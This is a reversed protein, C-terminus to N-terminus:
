RFHDYVAPLMLRRGDAGSVRSSLQVIQPDEHNLFKEVVNDIGSANITNRTVIPLRSIQQLIKL